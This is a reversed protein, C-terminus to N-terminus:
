FSGLNALLSFSRQFKGFKSCVRFCFSQTLDGVFLFFVYVTVLICPWGSPLTESRLSWYRFLEPKTFRRVNQLIIGGMAFNPEFPSRVDAACLQVDGEWGKHKAKPVGVFDFFYIIDLVPKLLGIESHPTDFAVFNQLM